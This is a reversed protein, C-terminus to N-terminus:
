RVGGIEGLFGYDPSYKSASAIYLNLIRSDRSAFRRPIPIILGDVSKHDQKLQLYQEIDCDLISEVTFENEDRLKEEGSMAWPGSDLFSAYREVEVESPGFEELLEELRSQSLTNGDISKLFSPIGSLEEASYPKEDHPAYFFVKGIKNQELQAFRNCRGMRQILSTIPATETILVDADLDLSMECVQTTIALIADKGPRFASIVNNHRGKRDELRFRSHYCLAKLDKALSQCRAVTNVM